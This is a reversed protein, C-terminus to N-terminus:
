GALKAKQLPWNMEQTFREWHVIHGQTNLITVVTWDQHKALDGGLSYAQGHVPQEFEGTIHCRVNQFVAGSDEIFMGLVEQQWYRETWKPKSRMLEEKDILPNEWTSGEQSYYNSGALRGRMFLKWFWGKGKPTYPFLAWGKRDILRAKLFQEWVAERGIACEDYILWNLGRGLLSAPNEASKGYCEAGNRLQIYQQSESFRVVM